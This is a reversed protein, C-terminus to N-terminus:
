GLIEKVRGVEGTELRVKIGHPHTASKTLVTQVVGETLRGSRQDQKQVVAVRLGPRITSRSTGNTTM